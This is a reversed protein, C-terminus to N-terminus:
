FTQCHDESTARPRRTPSSALLTAAYWQKPTICIHHGKYSDDCVVAVMAHHPPTWPGHLADDDRAPVLAHHALYPRLKSM